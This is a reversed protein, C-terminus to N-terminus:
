TILTSTDVTQMDLYHVKLCLILVVAATFEQVHSVIRYFGAVVSVGSQTNDRCM